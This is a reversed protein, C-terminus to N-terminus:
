LGRPRHPGGEVAAFPQHSRRVFLLREMGVWSATAAPPASPASLLREVQDFFSTDRDGDAVGNRAHGDSDSGHEGTRPEASDKLRPAGRHRQPAARRRARRPDSRRDDARQTRAVDARERASATTWERALALLLLATLLPLLSAISFFLWGVVYESRSPDLESIDKLAIPIFGGPNALAAGAGVIAIAPSASVKQIQEMM